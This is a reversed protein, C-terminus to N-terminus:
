PRKFYRNWSFAVGSIAAAALVVGLAILSHADFGAIGTATLLVILGVSMLMMVGLAIARHLKM